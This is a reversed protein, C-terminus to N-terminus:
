IISNHRVSFCWCFCWGYSAPLNSKRTNCTVTLNSNLIEGDESLYHFFDDDLWEDGSEDGWSLLHIDSGGVKKTHKIRPNPLRMGLREAKDSYYKKIFGPLRDENEWTAEPYGVWKIKFIQKENEIKIELIIEVLLFSTTAQEM